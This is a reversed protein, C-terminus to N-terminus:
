WYWVVEGRLWWSGLRAMNPFVGIVDAGMGAGAYRKASFGAGDEMNRIHVISSIPLSAGVKGKGQGTQSEGMAHGSNPFLLFISFPYFILIFVLIRREIM